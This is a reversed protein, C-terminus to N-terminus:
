AAAMQRPRDPRSRLLNRLPTPFVLAKPHAHVIYKPSTMTVFWSVNL